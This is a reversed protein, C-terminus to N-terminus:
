KTVLDCIEASIPELADRMTEHMHFIAGNIELEAVHTSGDDNRFCFNEIAGFKTYFDITITGNSIDLEPAFHTTNSKITM